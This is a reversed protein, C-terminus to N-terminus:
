IKKYRIGNITLTDPLSSASSFYETIKKSLRSSGKFTEINKGSREDGFWHSNSYNLESRHRDDLHIDTPTIIAIGGFGLYEAIECLISSDVLDCNRDYVHLDAAFGLNHADGIFAGKITKSNNDCRYGSNIIISSIGIINDCAVYFEELHEVFKINIKRQNCCKCNFEDSDFHNTIKM